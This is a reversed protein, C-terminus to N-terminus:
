QTFALRRPMPSTPVFAIPSLQAVASDQRLPRQSAPVQASTHQLSALQPLPRRQVTAATVVPALTTVAICQRGVELEELVPALRRQTSLPSQELPTQRWTLVFRSSGFKHMAGHQEDAAHPM